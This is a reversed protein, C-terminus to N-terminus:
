ERRYYVCCGAVLIATFIILFAHSGVAGIMGTIVDSVVSESGTEEPSAQNRSEEQQQGQEEESSKKGAEIDSTRDEGYSQGEEGGPQEEKQSPPRPKIGLDFYFTRTQSMSLVGGAKEVSASVKLRYNGPKASGPVDVRVLVVKAKVIGDGTGLFEYGERPEMDGPESYPLELERPFINVDWGSPQESELELQLGSEDHINFFLVKFTASEGPFVMDYKRDVASGMSVAAGAFRPLLLALFLWAILAIWIERRM